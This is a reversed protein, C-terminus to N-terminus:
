KYLKRRISTPLDAEPPLHPLCCQHVPQAEATLIPGWLAQASGASSPAPLHKIDDGSLTFPYILDMMEGPHLSTAWRAPAPSLTTASALYIVEPSSVAIGRSLALSFHPEQSWSCPQSHESFNLGRQESM